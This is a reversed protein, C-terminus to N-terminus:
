LEEQKTLEKDSAINGSSYGNAKKEMIDLFYKEDSIIKQGKIRKFDRFITLLSFYDWTFSRNIDIAKDSSVITLYYKVNGRGRGKSKIKIDADKINIEKVWRKNFDYGAVFMKDDEIKVENVFTRANFLAVIIYVLGFATIMLGFIEFGEKRELYTYIIILTVAVFEWLFENRVRTWFSLHKTMLIM